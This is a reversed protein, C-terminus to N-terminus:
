EVPIVLSQGVQLHDSALSNLARIQEITASQTASSDAKQAISWLSDGPQVVYTRVSEEPLAGPNSEGLALGALAALVLVAALTIFYGVIKAAKSAFSDLGSSSGAMASGSMPSHSVASRSAALRAPALRSAASRPVYSIEITSM